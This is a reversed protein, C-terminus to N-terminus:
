IHIAEDVVALAAEKLTESLTPHSHVMWGLETVSGELMRTMSLEALLETVDAGIMHAGLIEGYEADTVLKVLGESEGMAAAKGNAQYPFKGVKVDYGQEQAEKETLGFSAVQPSCYTAKPMNLYSLAAPERGAIAEVAYVGQASAAHALLLKNTVDGIAYVGPVNTAMGDDIQVFGGDIAVGVEELGIGEVNGQVGVAVLVKDCQVDVAGGAQEVRLTAGNGDRTMGTVKSGTMVNIGQKSLSRELQQSIEEDENPLLRPLLEVITVDVGYANYVSAFEVGVAGGGVVVASSPLNTQELAQRSTIVLDEDVPLPPITRARAGTAIIINKAHIVDEGPSVSLTHADTLRAEGKIHDVKNKRFLYAVGRVMRAAVKRSREIAKSYDVHLNDYTIGFDESRKFLSVIEANRLIAKSPICGWNLCIGGLEDREVVATKLGLQGARIAAVYGGPGAGVIAIDYESRSAM